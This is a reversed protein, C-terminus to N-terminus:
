GGPLPEIKPIRAVPIHLHFATGESGSEVRIFGKHMKLIREALPLGLGFGRITGADNVRYFPQFIRTLEEPSIGPGNDRVSVKLERGALELSVEATHAPSYKCANLVINNLATLLLAQNGFILLPEEEEPLNRFQLRVQYAPNVRAAASPLNLVMEDMRVPEIELGQSTGSAKAFELLTQTLKNMQRVDEYVSQLVKKYETDSRERQLTVELQSIIVTLPTSLEHSANAIFRGQLEFSEQLRDLLGNLTQSLHHWEDHTDGTEIRRALNQASIVAVDQSIQKVPRLLGGSFFYGVILVLINGGLFSVLLINRLQHLALKGETDEGAVIVVMDWGARSYHYALAERRGILFFHQGNKRAEELSASDITLADSPLDSYRYITQNQEDFAEVVKDKISITTFSDIRLVQNMDFRERESLLRATTIARNGLRTKITNLRAQYSFYYICSCVISLIGFVLLLFLFTLRVRIPM